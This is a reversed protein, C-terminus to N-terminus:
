NFKAEVREGTSSVAYVKSINETGPLVKFECTSSVSTAPAPTIFFAGKESEVEWAVVNSWGSCTFTRGDCEIAGKGIAGKRRFYEINDDTIYEIRYEPKPLKLDAIRQKVADAQEKTVVFRKDGYDGKQMDVEDYFGWRSFFDRLDLGSIKSVIYTFELQNEGPETADEHTRVYEFVDKYFDDYGKVLSVYLYLQWFPPLQSDSDAEKDGTRIFPWEGTLYYSMGLEFSNKYGSSTKFMNLLRVQKNPTMNKQVYQAFLNNTVEAMGHWCLGPKTQYTHGVEHAPGWMDTTFREYDTLADITNIVYATHYTSAYMHAKYMVSFCVRNPDMRDYKELGMFEQELRVLEDYADVLAKGDPTNARFKDTPFIIHTKKGLLDFHPGVAGDLLRKWDAAQHKQSDFYGNVQGSPIHIKIPLATKYDPTHYYIYVLGDSDTIFRNIGASLPYSYNYNFGDDEPVNLNLVRASLEYGHTDGVLVVVEKGKNVFIGTPNELIDHAWSTKNEKKFLNPHPYAKYEQIRFDRPYKDAHMYYAINRFLPDPCANIKEETVGSKLETCTIDTFLNLPDYNEPNQRYFEMEKVILYNGSTESVIFRVGKPQIVPQPFVIRTAGGSSLNIDMLKTYEPQEATSVQVEAKRMIDSGAPYYVCYDIRDQEAFEFTMQLPWNEPKETRKDGSHYGTDRSGDYARGFVSSSLVSVEGKVNVAAGGSVPVQADGQIASEKSEYDGFAEQTIKLEANLDSDKDKVVIAGSRSEGMNRQVVYVHDTTVYEAARTTTAPLTIWEPTNIEFEVNATIAFEIKGGEAKVTLMMPSILIGKDTGLQRVTVKRSIGAAKLTITTTRVEKGSNQTTTIALIHKGNEIDPIVTCWSKGSPELVATWEQQNTTVAITQTYAREEFDISEASVELTAIDEGNKEGDSCASGVGMFSFLFICVSLYLIKKM